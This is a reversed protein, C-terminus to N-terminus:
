QVAGAAEARAERKTPPTEVVVDYRGRLARYFEDLKEVRRANAWERAVAERVAALKPLGGESRESVFVFHLGFASAFPGQWSNTDSSFLEEAFSEGFDNVVESRRVANFESGLLLGDGLSAGETGNAHSLAAAIEQVDADLTEGRKSSLFVQRFSVSQEMRFQEPHAALYANLESDTPEAAAIDEAFFEMKQRIRRRIVIDDRDLELAKGERYYVEDRVYDEVLGKLEEPAPQRQWTRAFTQELNAIQAASVVIKQPVETETGVFVANLGFLAAGLILFHLLPERLLRMM